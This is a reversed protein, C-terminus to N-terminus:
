EMQYDLNKDCVQMNYAARLLSDYDDGSSDAQTEWGADPDHRDFLSKRDLFYRATKNTFLRLTTALPGTPPLLHLNGCELRHYGQRAQDRCRGCCFIVETCGDCGLGRVVSRLCTSCNTTLRALHLVSSIPREEVIVEGVEIDQRAVVHRRVKEGVAVEVKRSVFRNRGAEELRPPSRSRRSRVCRVTKLTLGVSEVLREKMKDELSSEDLEKRAVVVKISKIRILYKSNLSFRISITALNLKDPRCLALREWLKVRQVVFSSPLLELAEVCDEYSEQNFDLSWTALSRGACIWGIM